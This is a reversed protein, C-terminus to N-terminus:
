GTPVNAASGAVQEESAAVEPVVAIAPESNMDIGSTKFGLDVNVQPYSVSPSDAVNTSEDLDLSSIEPM